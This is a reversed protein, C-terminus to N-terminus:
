CHLGRRPVTPTRVFYAIDGKHELHKNQLACSLTLLHWEPDVTYQLENSYQINLSYPPPSFYSPICFKDFLKRCLKTILM